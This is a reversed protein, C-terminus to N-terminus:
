QNAAGSDEVASPKDPGGKVNEVAALQKQAAQIVTKRSDVKALFTLVTEDIEEAIAAAADNANKQMIDVIAQLQEGSVAYGIPPQGDEPKDLVVPISDAFQPGAESLDVVTEMGNEDVGLVVPPHESDMEAIYGCSKLPGVREPLIIGEPIVNGPLYDKGGLNIKKVCIHEM